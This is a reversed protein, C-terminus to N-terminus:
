DRYCYIFSSTLDLDNEIIQVDSELSLSGLAKSMGTSMRDLVKNWESWDEVRANSILLVLQDQFHAIMNEMIDFLKTMSGEPENQQDAYKQHLILNKWKKLLKLLDEVSM